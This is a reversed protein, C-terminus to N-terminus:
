FFRNRTCDLDCDCGVRERGVGRVGAPNQPHSFFLAGRHAMLSGECTAFGALSREVRLPTWSLGLDHSVSSVRNLSRDATESRGVMLLSGNSLAALQCENMQRSPTHTFRCASRSRSVSRIQYDCVRDIHSTHSM